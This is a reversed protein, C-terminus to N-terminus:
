DADLCLLKGASIALFGGAFWEAEHRLRELRLLRHADLFKRIEALRACKCAALNVVKLQKLIRRLARLPVLEPMQM